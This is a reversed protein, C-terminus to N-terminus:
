DNEYDEIIIRKPSLSYHQPESYVDDPRSIDEWSMSQHTDNDINTFTPEFIM